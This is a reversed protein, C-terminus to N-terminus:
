LHQPETRDPEIVVSECVNMWIVQTLMNSKLQTKARELEDETLEHCMRVMKNMVHWSMDQVKKPDAVFYVGFM